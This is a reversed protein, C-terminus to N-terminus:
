DPQKPVLLPVVSPNVLGKTSSVAAGPRPKARCGLYTKWDAIHGSASQLQEQRAQKAATPDPPGLDHHPHGQGQCSPEEGVLAPVVWSAGVLLLVAALCAGLWPLYAIGETASM